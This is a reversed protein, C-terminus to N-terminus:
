GLWTLAAGNLLVHVTNDAVILLWVTLWAPEQPPYGTATCARWPLRWRAPAAQNKAWVLLRALRWRDVAAPAPAL